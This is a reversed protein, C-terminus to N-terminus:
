STQNLLEFLREVHDSYRYHEEAAKRGNRGMRAALARNEYLTIIASEFEDWSSVVIGCDYKRLIEATEKLNTSVIPKGASMYESLKALHTMDYILLRPYPIICVDAKLLYDSTWLSRPPNAAEVFSPLQLGAYGGGTLILNVEFGRRRLNGVSTILQNVNKSARYSGAYLLPLGDSSKPPTEKVSEPFGGNPIVTLKEPNLHYRRRFYAMCTATVLIIRSNSKLTLIDKVTAWLYLFGPVHPHTLQLSEVPPDFSDIIVRLMDLRSFVQLIPIALLGELRHLGYPYAILVTYRGRRRDLTFILRLLLLPLITRRIAVQHSKSDFDRLQHDAWSFWSIKLQGSHQNVLGRYLGFIRLSIGGGVDELKEIYLNTVLLVPKRDHTQPFNGDKLAALGRLWDSSKFYLVRPTGAPFAQQYFELL